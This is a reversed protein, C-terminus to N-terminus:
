TGSEKKKKFFLFTTYQKLFYNNSDACLHGLSYGLQLIRKLTSLIAAKSLGPVGSLAPMSCMSTLPVSLYWSSQNLWICACGTNVHFYDPMQEFTKGSSEPERLSAFTKLSVFTM